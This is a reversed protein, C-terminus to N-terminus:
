SNMDKISKLFYEYEQERLDKFPFEHPNPKFPQIRRFTITSGLKPMSTLSSFVLSQGTEKECAKIAEAKQDECKGRLDALDNRYDEVIQGEAEIFEEDSAKLAEICVEEREEIKTILSPRKRVGSKYLEELLQDKTETAM